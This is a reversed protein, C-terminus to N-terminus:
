RIWDPWSLCIVWGLRGIILIVRNIFKHQGNALVHLGNGIELVLYGRGGGLVGLDNPRLCSPASNSPIQEIGSGLVHAALGIGGM